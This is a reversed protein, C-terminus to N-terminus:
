IDPRIKNRTGRVQHQRLLEIPPMAGYPEPQPMNVDDVFLIMRKGYPAGFKNKRKKELKNEVFVEFAGGFAM